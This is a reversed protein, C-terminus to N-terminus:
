EAGSSYSLEGTLDLLRGRLFNEEFLCFSWERSVFIESSKSRSMLKSLNKRERETKRQLYGRLEANLRDLSQHWAAASGTAPKARILKQKSKVKSSVQNNAQMEDALFREPHFHMERIQVRKHIIERHKLPPGPSPLLATLSLVGFTPATVQFLDHIILDTVQDYKAGGIGHVFADACFLRLFMTNSLARPRLRLGHESYGQLQDAIKSPDNIANKLRWSDKTRNSIVLDNESKRVWAARRNPDDSKWIWFPTEQWDDESRLDPLPQAHNRLRHVDRYEQLRSNYSHLVEGARLFLHAAFWRFEGTECLQSLPVELTRLGWSHEMRHRAQAFAHGISHDAHTAAIVDPWLRNVLPNCVFPKIREAVRNAFSAFLQPDQVFRAEYPTANQYGDFSISAVVPEDASGTPCLISHNRMLDNDIVIQIAQGGVSSAMRDIAFNKAWVGPHFLAPQHGSVFLPMDARSRAPKLDLYRSSYAIAKDLLANRM